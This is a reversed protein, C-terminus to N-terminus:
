VLLGDWCDKTFMIYQSITALRKFKSKMILLLAYIIIAKIIRMKFERQKKKVFGAACDFTTKICKVCDKLGSLGKQIKPMTQIIQENLSCIRKDAKVICSIVNSAIILEAIFIIAIFLYM